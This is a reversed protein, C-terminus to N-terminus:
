LKAEEIRSIKTVEGRWEPSFIPNKKRRGEVEPGRGKGGGGGTTVNKKGNICNEAILRGYGLRPRDMSPSPAWFFRKTCLALRQCSAMIKGVRVM